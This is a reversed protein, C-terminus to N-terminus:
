PLLTLDNGHRIRARRRQQNTGCGVQHRLNSLHDFFEVATGRSLFDDLNVFKVISVWLVNTWDELTKEVAVRCPVVIRAISAREEALSVRQGSSFRFLLVSRCRLSGSESVRAAPSTCPLPAAPRAPKSSAM